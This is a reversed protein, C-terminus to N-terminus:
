QDEYPLVRLFEGRVRYPGGEDLDSPDLDWPEFEPNLPELRIREHRWGEANEAKRSSYRKVTFEGGSESAGAHQILLYKGQRSGTVSHRFLCLSGDPIMPEMSRGVVHAVFMDESLRLDEPAKVWDQAEVEMDTGWGGAAARLAYLPLHTRYRSVPQAPAAGEVHRQYLRALAKEFDFVTVAERDRIRITNSLTDELSQLFRGGGLERSRLSFDAEVHALMEADEPDAVAEWDGRFKLHVRDAEPDLLLVGAVIPPRGPLALEVLSYQAKRAATFSLPM